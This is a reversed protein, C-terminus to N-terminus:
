PRDEPRQSLSVRTGDDLWAGGAVVVQERASLGSRIAVQTGAGPGVTVRRRTVRDSGSPLVFVIASDGDADILAEVPITVTSPQARVGITVHGILGSALSRPAGPLTIEVDYTGTMPNTAAGVQSIRGRLPQDPLADLSVSASDGKRVLVADRDPLSARFVLGKAFSRLLLVPAGPAVLQSPEAFRRLVVGATPARIGAYRGNFRAIRAGQDALSWATEANQVQELTAVSDAFLSRARALDRAAKERADVAQQITADIETPTLEALLQGAEVVDGPHVTVSALVGGIKFSLPVEEKGALTGAARVQRVGNGMVVEALQVPVTRGASTEPPSAHGTSCAALVVMPLASIRAGALRLTRM